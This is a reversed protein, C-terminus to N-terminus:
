KEDDVWERVIKRIPLIKSPPVSLEDIGMKLFTGTMEEDAALEGCIGIWKGAAHANEAAMKIMQLVAPHHTDYFAEVRPNQRDAALTYQTLDNTGVSFFDVEGALERSIMVAAPTEIMVGFEVDERFPVNERRLEERVSGVLKKIERVEWLSTIMPFLVALRGFCSARLLARLQTRFLEPRDLCIRIARYGMAPNEEEPLHFYGARKDGGIDMTRIVARKGNMKEVVTKYVQFQEEETPFTESGLYLFESRFLGIGEADNQIAADLGPLGGINAALGIRRGDATVTEEGKLLAYLEARRMTQHQKKRMRAITKEDPNIYVKGEFGDVVALCGDYEETLADGLATVAPINMTRALLSAHSNVSGHSTAFGLVKSRDLQVTESPTLNDAAIIVPETLNMKVRRGGSLVACLRESVDRIDAARARMYSDSASEFVDMLKEATLSVAYEANVKRERILDLVAATYEVDGMIMRHMEFIQADAEGVERVAQEYLESLEEMGRRQADLFREKEAKKDTIKWKKVNSDNRRFYAIKGVAVKGFVSKGTLVIMRDIGGDRLRVDAIQLRRESRQQVLAGVNLM